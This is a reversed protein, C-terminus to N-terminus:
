DANKLIQWHGGKDPGIRQLLGKQQLKAITKAIARRSIGL